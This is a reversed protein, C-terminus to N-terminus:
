ACIRNRGKLKAEYLYRDAQGLLVDFNVKRDTLTAVGISVTFHLAGGRDRRVLSEEAAKRLREATEMAQLNGTEPLLVSFEEGGIRGIVDNERLVRICLAGFQQLVLDGTQHGYNDNFQKFHDIDIMLVSLSSGYRVARVLEHEALEMFYRRNALGTLSDTRALLELARENKKRETIDRVVGLITGSQGEENLIWTAAIETPIVHGDKHVQEVEVVNTLRIREGSGARESMERLRAHATERSAPTLVADFRMAMLEEPLYGILREVSPSVYTFARSDMDMTWIVDHSHEAVLRYRAESLRIKEEDQKRTTIDRSVALIEVREGKADSFYVAHMDLWRCAGKLGAIEFELSVSEGDHIQQFFARFAELGAPRVFDTVNRGIIDADEAAEFMLLGARNIQLFAGDMGLITVGEPEVDIITKLREESGALAERAIKEQQMLFGTRRHYFHLALSSVLVVCLFSILRVQFEHDWYAYIDQDRRSVVIELPKDMQLVDPRVTRQVVTRVEGTVQSMGSIVTVPLGSERHRLFLSGSKALDTGLQITRERPAMLILVGDGHVIAALADPAYRASEILPYFYGPEMVAIVVGSFRGADDTVMRSLAFTYVGSTNRFPLSVYLSGADPHQQPTRFYDRQTFVQSLNRVAPDSSARIRGEPDVVSIRQVSPIAGQLIALRNDLEATYRPGAKPASMELQLATLTDNIAIINQEINVQIIKSVSLLSNKEADKIELKKRYLDQSGILLVVLLGLGLM